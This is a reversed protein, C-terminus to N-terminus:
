KKLDFIFSQMKAKNFKYMYPCDYSPKEISLGGGKLIRMYGNNDYKRDYYENYDSSMSYAEKPEFDSWIGKSIEELYLILEKKTEDDFYIDANELNENELKFIINKKNSEITLIDDDIDKFQKEM